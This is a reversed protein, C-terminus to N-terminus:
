RLSFRMKTFGKLLFGPGIEKIVEFCCSLIVSTLESDPLVKEEKMTRITIDNKGNLNAV